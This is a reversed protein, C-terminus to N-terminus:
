PLFFQFQIKSYSCCGRGSMDHCITFHEALKKKVLCQDLFSSMDVRGVVIASRREVADDVALDLAAGLADLDQELVAGVDVGGVVVSHRRKVERSVVVVDIM